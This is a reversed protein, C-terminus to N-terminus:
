SWLCDGLPTWTQLKILFSVRACNNEQLNQWIELFVKEELVGGTAWETKHRHLKKNKMHLSELKRFKMFVKAFKVFAVKLSTQDHCELDFFRLILPFLSKFNQLSIKQPYNFFSNVFKRIYLRFLFFQFLILNPFTSQRLRNSCNRWMDVALKAM